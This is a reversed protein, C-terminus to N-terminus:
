GSEKLVSNTYPLGSEHRQIYSFLNDETFRIIQERLLDLSGENSIFGYRDGFQYDAAFQSLMYERIDKGYYDRFKENPRIPHSDPNTPDLRKHARDLCTEISADFYLCFAGTLFDPSFHRLAEKYDDRAFEIITLQAQSLEAVKELRNLTEHYVSPDIIDFNGDQRAQFRGRTDEWFMEYLIPFDYLHCTTLGRGKAKNEIFRAATSKGSGPRGLIFVKVGM